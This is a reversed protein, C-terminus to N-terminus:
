PCCSLTSDLQILVSPVAEVRLYRNKFKGSIIPFSVQCYINFVITVDITQIVNKNFLNFKQHLVLLKELNNSTIQLRKQIKTAIKWLRHQYNGSQFPKQFCSLERRALSNTVRTLRWPPCHTPCPFSMSLRKCPARNVSTDFM